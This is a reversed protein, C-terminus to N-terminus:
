VPRVVYRSSRGFVDLMDNAMFETAFILEWDQRPHKAIKGTTLDIIAYEM